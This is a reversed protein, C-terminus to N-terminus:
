LRLGVRDTRLGLSIVSVHKITRWYNVFARSQLRGPKARIVAGTSVNKNVSRAAARVIANFCIDRLLQKLRDNQQM